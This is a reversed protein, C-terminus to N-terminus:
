DGDRRNELAEKLMVAPLLFTALMTVLWVIIPAIIWGQWGAIDLGEPAVLTAILLAVYTSILGVAGVLTPANNRAVKALFPSLIAQALAFIVVALVFALPNGWVVDFTQWDFASFLLDTLVIGIAAGLLFIVTRALLRIM